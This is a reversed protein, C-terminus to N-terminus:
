LLNLFTILYILKVYRSIYLSVRIGGHFIKCKMNPLNQNEIKVVDILRYTRNKYIDIWLFDANFVLNSQFCSSRLPGGLVNRIFRNMLRRSKHLRSVWRHNLAWYLGYLSNLNQVSRRMLKKCCLCSLKNSTETTILKVRILSLWDTNCNIILCATVHKHLLLISILQICLGIFVNCITLNLVIWSIAILTSSSANNSFYLIASENRLDAM